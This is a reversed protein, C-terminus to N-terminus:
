ATRTMRRRARLTLLAVLTFLLGGDAGANCGCGSSPPSPTTGGDAGPGADPNGADDDTGADPAGADFGGDESADITGADQGADVGADITGADPAGSDVPGADPVPVCVGSMCVGGDCRTGPLQEPSTCGGLEPDCTGALHCEDVAPCSQWTAGRCAGAGDCVSSLSCVDLDNCSTGADAFPGPQCYGYQDCQDGSTCEKGDDCPTGPSLKVDPPCDRTGDCREALDCAGFRPRCVVGADQYGDAPCDFHVGDCYEPVDCSGYGSGYRCLVTHPLPSCTGDVVGGAAVSCAQCDTAGQGCATDCCVGDVCFGTTCDNPQSCSSGVGSPSRDYVRAYVRLPAFPDTKDNHSYVILATGNGISAISPWVIYQGGDPQAFLLDGISGQADYRHLGLGYNSGITASGVQLFEFGDFAVPHTGSVGIPATFPISFPTGVVGASSVTAASGTASTVVYQTGDFAVSPNGGTIIKFPPADLAGGDTAVRVGWTTGTYDDFVVLYATGDSAIGVTSPGRGGYPNLGMQTDLWGGDADFRYLARNALVLYQHQAAVVAQANGVGPLPMPTSDILQGAGSVRAANLENGVWVALYDTGNSALCLGFNGTYPYGAPPSLVIGQPDLVVGAPTVRTAYVRGERADTWGVLYETGNTAVDPETQSNETGVLPREATDIPTLSTTFQAFTNAALYETCETASCNLGAAYEGVPILSVPAADVLSGNVAVRRAFLQYPLSVANVWTVVYESGDFAGQPTTVQAGAVVTQFPQLAGDFTAAQISLTYTVYDENTMTVLFNTAGAVLQPNGPVSISSVLGLTGSASVTAVQPTATGTSPPVLVWSLAFGASNGVVSPSTGNPACSFPTLDLVQGATSVRVADIGYTSGGNATQTQWVVLFEGAGYAAQLYLFNQSTDSYITFPVADLLTGTASIRQGRITNQNDLWTLLYLGAGFTVQYNTYSAPVGVPQGNVPSAVGQPSVSETYLQYPGSGNNLREDLWFFVHNTGDFATGEAYAGIPARVTVPDGTAEEASLMPDLVAPWSTARLVDVPVRLVIQEGDWMLEVSSRTGDADVWSADGYRFAGSASSFHLGDRDASRFVAGEVQVRLLLEEEAWGQFTWRQELANPLAVVEESFGPRVVSVRNTKASVAPAGAAISGASATRLKAWPTVLLGEGTVTAPLAGGVSWGGARSHFEPAPNSVEIEASRLRPAPQSRSCGVGVVLMLAAVLSRRRRVLWLLAAAVMLGPASSCGETTSSGEHCGEDIQGDCDNDLGDCRNEDPQYNVGYRRGDCHAWVGSICQERAHVTDACVGQQLECRVVELDPDVGDILGDCDNDLGDCKTEAPEFTSPLDDLTCAAWGGDACVHATTGACVGLQNACPPGDNAEDVVGDCDNDLGDCSLETPEYREGYDQQNCGLWQGGVCETRLHHAGACVGLSSQCAARDLTPSESDTLGDCDDDRGNCVEIAGPHVEPRSDDCDGPQISTSSCVWIPRRLDGYGDSDDDAWSQVPACVGYGFAFDADVRNGATGLAGLYTARVIPDCVGADPRSASFRRWDASGGVPRVELAFPELAPLVFPADYFNAWWGNYLSGVAARSAPTAGPALADLYVGPATVGALDAVLTSVGVPVPQPAYGLPMLTQVAAAGDAIHVIDVSDYPWGTALGADACAPLAFPDTGVQEAVLTGGQRYTWGYGPLELETNQVQLGDRTFGNQAGYNNQTFTLNVFALEADTVPRVEFIVSPPLALATPFAWTQWESPSLSATTSALSAGTYNDLLTLTWTGAVYEAGTKWHLATLQTGNSGYNWLVYRLASADASGSSGVRTVAVSPNTPMLGPYAQASAVGSLLLLVLPARM